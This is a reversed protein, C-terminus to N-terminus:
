KGAAKLLLQSCLSSAPTGTKKVAAEAAYLHGLFAESREVSWRRVQAAMGDVRTWFVPPMLKKVAMKADMGSDFYSRALWVKLMHGQMTRLIAVESTREAMLHDFLRMARRADGSAVANVLDDLQTEGADILVAAIDAETIGGTGKAYLALKDIESRMAIRDSPLTDVLIALVETPIKLGETQLLATITRRREEGTEAYCGIAVALGSKEGECAARLKSKASLEGAEIILVSDGKPPDSLVERVAEANGDVAYRLWVLRRGGTFPMASMEEYLRHVHDTVENGDLLSVAFPDKTDPVMKRALMEGRECVLGADYGFLLM